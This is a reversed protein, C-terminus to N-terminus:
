AQYGLQQLEAVAQERTIEGAQVRARIEQAKVDERISPRASEQMIFKRSRQDYVAGPGQVKNGMADTTVPGNVAIVRGESPDKGQMALLADQLDNRRQPDTENRLQDMVELMRGQRERESALAMREEDAKAAEASTKWKDNRALEAQIANQAQANDRKWGEAQFGQNIAQRANDLEEARAESKTVGKRPSRISANRQATDTDGMYSISPGKRERQGIAAMHEPNNRDATLMMRDLDGATAHRAFAADM